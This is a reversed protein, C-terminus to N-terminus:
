KRDVKQTNPKVGARYSSVVDSPPVIIDLKYGLLEYALDGYSEGDEVVPVNECTHLYSYMYM